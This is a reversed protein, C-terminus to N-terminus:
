WRHLFIGNKTKENKILIKNKHKKEYACGHEWVNSQSVSRKPIDNIKVFSQKNENVNFYWCENNFDSGFIYYNNHNCPGVLARIHQNGNRM